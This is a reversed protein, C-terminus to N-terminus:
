IVWPRLGVHGHVFDRSTNRFADFAHLAHMSGHVATAHDWPQM